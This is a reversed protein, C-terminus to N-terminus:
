RGSHSRRPPRSEKDRLLQTLCRVYAQTTSIERGEPTAELVPAFVDLGPVALQEDAKRAAHPCIAALHRRREHLYKM